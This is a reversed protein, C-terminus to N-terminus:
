ALTDKLLSSFALEGSTSDETQKIIKQEGNVRHPWHQGWHTFTLTFLYKLHSVSCKLPWLFSFLAILVTRWCWQPPQKSLLLLLLLLRAFDNNAASVLITQCGEASFSSVSSFSRDNMYFLRSKSNFKSLISIQSNYLFIMLKTSSASERCGPSISLPQIAGGPTQWACLM